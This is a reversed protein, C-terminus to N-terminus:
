DELLNSFLSYKKRMKATIEIKDLPTLCAGNLSDACKCHFENQQILAALNPVLEAVFNNYGLLVNPIDINEVGPQDERWADYDSPLALIVYCIGAERALFVEPVCTEGVVSAQYVNKYVRSEARTSFRPGEICLYTGTEPEKGISYAADFLLKALDPCIPDAGSIHVALGDNFFTNDRIGKTQDFVQDPIVVDKGPVIDEMLSGCASLSLIHTVGLMKMGFINARYNVRSPDVRHDRGHRALIVVDVSTRLTAQIFRDSPTGFPTKMTIPQPDILDLQSIQGTGAILGLKFPRDM